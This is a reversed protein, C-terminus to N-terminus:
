STSASLEVEVLYFNAKHTDAFDFLVGDPITAGLSEASIKNKVDIFISHDGFFTEARESVLREFAAEDDYLHEEFRLNNLFLEM